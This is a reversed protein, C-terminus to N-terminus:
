IEKAVVLHLGKHVLQVDFYSAYFIEGDVQAVVDKDCELTFRNTQLIIAEKPHKYHNGTAYSPILSVFKAVPMNRVITLDLMGDSVDANPTPNFGGGYYRGNMVSILISKEKISHNADEYDIKLPQLSFMDGILSFLYSTKRLYKNKDQVNKANAAIGADFGISFSGLFKRDNVIGYDVCIEKGNITKLILEELSSLKPDILKFFDNGSGCPIIGMRVGARIGNLVENMTGDGGVALILVDDSKTFKRALETADNAKKTLLIEIECPLQDRLKEIKKAIEAGYGNGSTPNIICVIKKM